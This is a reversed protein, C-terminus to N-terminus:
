ASTFFVVSQNKPRTCLHSNKGWYSILHLFDESPTGKWTDAVIREEGTNPLSVYRIVTVNEVELYRIRSKIRKYETHMIKFCLNKRVRLAATITEHNENQIVSYLWM